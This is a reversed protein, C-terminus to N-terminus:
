AVRVCISRMSAWKARTQQLVALVSGVTNPPGPLEGANARVNAGSWRETSSSSFIRLQFPTCWWTQFIHPEAYPPHPNCPDGFICLSLTDILEDSISLEDFKQPTTIANTEPMSKLKPGHATEQLACMRVHARMCCVWFTSFLAAGRPHRPTSRLYSVQAFPTTLMIPSTSLVCLRM